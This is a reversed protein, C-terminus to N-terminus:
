MNKWGGNFDHKVYNLDDNPKFEMVDNYANFTNMPMILVDDYLVPKSIKTFNTWGIFKGDEINISNREKHYHEFEKNKIIPKPNNNIFKFKSFIKNFHKFISDTFIGPGTWNLITFISHLTHYERDIKVHNLRQDFKNLTTDVISYILERLIPHGPKSKFTWQCFQVRRAMKYKWDPLDFDGEIGVIFGINPFENLNNTSSPMDLSKILAKPNNDIWDDLSKLNSTDIDSYIGGKAFIILYRLFDFKLINKPLTEFTQLIEPFDGYLEMIISQIQDDTILNYEYGSQDSWSKIYKLLNKNSIQDIPEKWSQWIIKPISNSNRNYPYKQSLKLRLDNPSYEEVYDQFSDNSISQQLQQQQKNFVSTVTGTIHTPYFYCLGVLFSLLLSTSVLLAVTRKKSYRISGTRIKHLLGINKLKSTSSEEHHEYQNINISSSKEWSSQSQNELDDQSHNNKVKSIPADLM